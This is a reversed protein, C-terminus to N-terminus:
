YNSNRNHASYSFIIYNPMFLPLISIIIYFINMSVSSGAKCYFVGTLVIYLYVSFILIMASYKHTRNCYSLAWWYYSVFVLLICIVSPWGWINYFDAYMTGFCTEFWSDLRDVKHAGIGMIRNILPFRVEFGHFDDQFQVTSDFVYPQQAIYGITGEAFTSTDHYKDNYFRSVSFSGVFIVALGIILMLAKKIKNKNGTSISNRFILYFIIYFCPLVIFGDRATITM